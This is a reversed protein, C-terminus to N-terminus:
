LPKRTNAFIKKNAIKQLRYIISRYDIFRHFFTNCFLRLYFFHGCYSFLFYLREWFILSIGDLSEDIGDISCSYLFEHIIDSRGPLHEPRVKDSSYSASESCENTGSDDNRKNSPEERCEDIEREDPLLYFGIYFIDLCLEFFIGFCGVISLIKFSHLCCELGYVVRQFLLILLFM